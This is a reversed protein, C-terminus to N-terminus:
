WASDVSAAWAWSSVRAPSSSRVWGPAAADNRSPKSSVSVTSDRPTGGVRARVRRLVLQTSLMIPIQRLWEREHPQPHHQGTPASSSM